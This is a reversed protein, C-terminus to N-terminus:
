TQFVPPYATCVTAVVGGYSTGDVSSRPPVLPALRRLRSVLPPPPVTINGHTIAGDAAHKRQSSTHAAPLTTCRAELGSQVRGAERKKSDITRAHSDAKM